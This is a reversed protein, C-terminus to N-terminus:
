ADEVVALLDAEPMILYRADDLLIEQGSVWSFLVLDGVNVSPELQGAAEVAASWTDRLDPDATLNAAVSLCDRLYAVAQSDESQAVAVVRGMTEPKRHEVLVLGSDTTRDPEVPELLVRGSLPTFPPTM